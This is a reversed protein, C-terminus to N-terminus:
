PYPKELLSSGFSSPTIPFPKPASPLSTPPPNSRLPNPKSRPRPQSPQSFVLRRCSFYFLLSLLCISATAFSAHNDLSLSSFYSLPSARVPSVSGIYKPSQRQDPVRPASRMVPPPPRTCSYMASLLSTSTLAPEQPQPAQDRDVLANPQPRDQDEPGQGLLSAHATCCLRACFSADSDAHLPRDVVLRAQDLSRRM